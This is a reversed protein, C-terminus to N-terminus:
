ELDQESLCFAKSSGVRRANKLLHIKPIITEQCFDQVVSSDIMTPYKMMKRAEEEKKTNMEAPTQNETSSESLKILNERQTDEIHDFDRLTEAQHQDQDNYTIM